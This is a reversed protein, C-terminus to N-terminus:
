WCISCVRDPSPVPAASAPAMFGVAATVTIVIVMLKRM